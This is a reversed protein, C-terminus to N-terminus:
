MALIWDSDLLADKVRKPEEKSLFSSYLCEEQTARRTKVSASADGIILEFLHSKKGNRNLLYFQDLHLSKLKTLISTSQTDHNSHSHQNQSVGGLNISRISDAM